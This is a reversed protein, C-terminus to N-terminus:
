YTRQYQHFKKLLVVLDIIPMNQLKKKVHFCTISSIYLTSRNTWLVFFSITSHLADESALFLTKFSSLALTIKFSSRSIELIAISCKSSFIRGANLVVGDVEGRIDKQEEDGGWKECQKGENTEREGPILLNQKKLVPQFNTTTFGCSHNCDNALM